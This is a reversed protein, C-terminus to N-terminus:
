HAFRLLSACRSRGLRFNEKGGFDLDLRGRVAVGNPTPRGEGAGRGRLGSARGVGGVIRFSGHAKGRSPAAARFAMCARGGRPFKLLAFGRARGSDAVTDIVADATSTWRVRRKGKRLSAPFAAAPLRGRHVVGQIILEDGNLILEGPELERLRPPFSFSEATAPRPIFAFSKATALRRALEAAPAVRPTPHEVIVERATTGAAGGDDTVRLGVTYHGPFGNGPEQETLTPSQGTDLEYIGDGNRDWEYRVVQGDPDSSASANYTVQGEPAVPNPTVTFSALPPQNSGQRVELIVPEAKDYEVIDKAVVKAISAVAITQPSNYSRHATARWIGFTGTPEPNAHTELSGNGDLDLEIDVVNGFRLDMSVTFTVAEGVSAPNPQGELHHTEVLNCADVCGSMSLAATVTAIGAYIRTRNGIATGREHDAFGAAGQPRGYVRSLTRGISPRAKPLAISFIRRAHACAPCKSGEIVEDLM